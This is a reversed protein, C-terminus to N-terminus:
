KQGAGFNSDEHKTPTPRVNESGVGTAAEAKSSSLFLYTGGVAALAPVVGKKSLDVLANSAPKVRKLVDAIVKDGKDNDLFWSYACNRWSNLGISIEGKLDNRLMSTGQGIFWEMELIKKLKPDAVAKDFKDGEFARAGVGSSELQNITRVHAQKRESETKRLDDAINFDVMAKQITMMLKDLRSDPSVWKGARLLEPQGTAPNTRVTDKFNTASTIDNAYSFGGIFFSALLGLITVTRM